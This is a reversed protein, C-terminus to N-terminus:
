WIKALFAQGNGHEFHPNISTPQNGRQVGDYQFIVHAALLFMERNEILVDFQSSDCTVVCLFRQKLGHATTNLVNQNVGSASSISLARVGLYV